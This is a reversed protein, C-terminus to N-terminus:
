GILSGEFIIFTIFGGIILLCAFLLAVTQGDIKNEAKM